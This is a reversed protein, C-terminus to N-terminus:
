ASLFRGMARKRQEAELLRFARGMLEIAWRRDFSRDPTLDVSAVWADISPDAQLPVIKLQGGRKTTQHHKWENILFRRLSTILFTRFTGRTHDASSLLKKDILRSFFAQTLDEADASNNGLRRVYSYIPNWYLSCLEELAERSNDSAADVFDM